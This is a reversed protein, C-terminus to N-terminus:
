VEGKLFEFWSGVGKQLALEYIKVATVNDQIAMGTTDFITIEEENIRGMKKGTVLEGIEAYIDNQQIVGALLANRTEGRAICQKMSDNVIKAGRFVEPDWENKGPMDAGVAIIHIGKPVLQAPVIYKKSPTTSVAVDAQEMAQSITSCICVPIGTEREMEKKYRSLEAPYQSFVQIKEIPRVCCLGRVQM